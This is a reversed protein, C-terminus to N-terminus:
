FIFNASSLELVLLSLVLMHALSKIQNVQNSQMLLGFSQIFIFGVVVIIIVGFICLLFAASM